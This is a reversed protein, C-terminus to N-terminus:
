TNIRKLLKVFVSKYEPHVRNSVRCHVDKGYDLNKTGKRLVDM